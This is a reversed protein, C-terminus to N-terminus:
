LRGPHAGGFWHPTANQVILEEIQQPTVDANVSKILAALGAAHPATGSLGAEIEVPHFGRPNGSWGSHSSRL